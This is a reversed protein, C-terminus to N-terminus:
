TRPCTYKPYILYNETMVLNSIYQLFVVKELKRDPGMLGARIITFVAINEYSWIPGMKWSFFIALKKKNRLSFM